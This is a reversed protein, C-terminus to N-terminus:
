GGITVSLGSRSLLEAAREMEESFPTALSSLAYARGLKRYKDRGSPHYPLLSVKRVSQLTAVFAGTDCLNREDDNIGPILPMRIWLPVNRESLLRANELILENPVGAVEEHRRSDMHKLDYLFLDALEAVALLTESPAYGSTDVATSIEEGRCARLLAALFEPQGLPEGGSFTVGGGSQDYFLVDERVTAMVEAVSLSKGAMELADAVCARCCAGCLICRKRDLIVGGDPSPALAKEPCAAICAGCGICASPRHLLEPWFSQSEPNHCWLCSLPCGKLFVTTRIGPGDHVSYKRLDFVIGRVDREM